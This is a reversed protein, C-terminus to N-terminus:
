LAPSRKPAAAGKASSDSLIQAEVVVALRERASQDSPGVTCVPGSDWWISGDSPAMTFIPAGLGWEKELEDLISECAFANAKNALGADAPGAYDIASHRSPLYLTEDYIVMLCGWHSDEVEPLYHIFSAGASDRLPELSAKRRASRWAIMKHQPAFIEDARDFARAMAPAVAAERGPGIADLEFLHKRLAEPLLGDYFRARELSSATAMDVATVPAASIWFGRTPELIKASRARIGARCEEELAEQKADFM